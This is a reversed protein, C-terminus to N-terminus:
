CQESLSTKAKRPGTQLLNAGNPGGNRLARRRLTDRLRYSGVNAHPPTELVSSNEIGEPSNSVGFVARVLGYYLDFKQCCSLFRGAFGDNQSVKRLNLAQFPTSFRIVLNLSKITLLTHAQRPKAGAKCM